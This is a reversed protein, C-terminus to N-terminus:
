QGQTACSPRGQWQSQLLAETMTKLIEFGAPVETNEPCLMHQLTIGFSSSIIFRIVAARNFPAPCEEPKQDRALRSEIMTSIESLFTAVEARFRESSMSYNSFELFARYVSSHLSENYEVLSRIRESLSSLGNLQEDLGAIYDDQIKKLVAAFLSEKNGYYYDLQSLAVGADEAIGRLTVSGCGKTAISNFAADLIRDATAERKCNTKM